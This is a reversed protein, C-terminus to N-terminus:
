ALMEGAKLQAGRLFDIAQMAKKGEPQLETIRYLSGEACAIDLEQDNAIISGAPANHQGSLVEGGILKLWKGKCLTRVGPRPSFCRVM